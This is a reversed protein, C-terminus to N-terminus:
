ALSRWVRLNDKKAKLGCALLRGDGSIDLCTVPGGAVIKTVQMARTLCWTRVVGESSGSILTPGNTKLTALTEGTQWSGIETGRGTDFRRILGSSSCMIFEKCDPTFVVCTVANDGGQVERVSMKQRLDWVFLCGDEAGSVALAGDPSMDMSKVEVAHEEFESTTAVSGLLCGMVFVLLTRLARGATVTWLATVSPRM